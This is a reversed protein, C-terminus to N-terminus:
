TGPDQAPELTMSTSVTQDLKQPDAGDTRIEMEFKFSTEVEAHDAMVRRLNIVQTGGGQGTGSTVHLTSGPPLMPSDIDQEPVEAHQDITLTVVDGDIATVTATLTQAFHMGNADIQQTVRWSGGVGVPEDPMPVTMQNMSQETGEIMQALQPDLGQGMDTHMDSFRGREDVHGAITVGTIGQYVSNMMAAAPSDGDAKMEIITSTMAAGGDAPKTTVRMLSVTAPMQPGPMEAGDISMTQGFRMTMRAWQEADEHRYRLRKPHEGRTILEVKPGDDAAAQKGRDHPGWGALVIACALAAAATTAKTRM